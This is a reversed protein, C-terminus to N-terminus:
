QGPGTVGSVLNATARGTANITDIGIISLVKTPESVRVTVKIEDTGPGPAASGAYGASSLYENAAAIAQDQDVVFSGSAHATAENVLGAGARAAEQAVAAANEAATLKAGGDIVVGALALLAVFLVALMLTLSGRDADDGRRQIMARERSGPQGPGSSHGQGDALEPHRAPTVIM